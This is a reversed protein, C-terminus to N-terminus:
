GPLRYIFTKGRRARALAKARWLNRLRRAVTNADLGPIDACVDAVTAGDDHHRRAVADLFAGAPCTSTNTARKTAEMLDCNELVEALRANERVAAAALLGRYRDQFADHTAINM